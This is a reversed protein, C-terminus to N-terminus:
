QHPIESEPELKEKDEPNSEQSHAPHDTGGQEANQKKPELEVTISRKTDNTVEIDCHKYGDASFGFIRPEYAVGSIQRSKEGGTHTTSQSFIDQSSSSPGHTTVKELIEGTNKDKVTVKIDYHFVNKLVSKIRYLELGQGVALIALIIAAIRWKRYEGNKASRCLM